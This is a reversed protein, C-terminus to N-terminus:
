CGGMYWLMTDVAKCVSTHWSGEMTGPIADNADLPTLWNSQSRAAEPCTYCAM